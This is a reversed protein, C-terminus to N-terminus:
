ERQTHKHSLTYVRPVARNDINWGIKWIRNSLQTSIVLSPHTVTHYCCNLLMCILLQFTLSGAHIRPPSCSYAAAPLRFAPSSSRSASLLPFDLRFASKMTPSLNSINQFSVFTCHPIILLPPMMIHTKTLTGAFHFGCLVSLTPCSPSCRQVAARQTSQLRVDDSFIWYDQKLATSGWYRICRLELRKAVFHLVATFIHTTVEMMQAEYLSSWHRGDACNADLIWLWWFDNFSAKVHLPKESIKTAFPKVKLKSFANPAWLRTLDYVNCDLSSINGGQESRRLRGSGGSHTASLNDSIKIWCM